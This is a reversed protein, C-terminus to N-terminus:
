SSSPGMRVPLHKVGNISSSRLRVAPGTVVFEPAHMLLQELMLRIELRALSAGLCIHPGGGGFTLHPNPARGVDFTDPDTFVSEDRNGSTFWLQLKEGVRITEGHLQVDATATRGFQMLASSYRLMEDTATPLLAPDALLRRRQDPHDTLAIAAHALTNRTTENGGILLLICFLGLELESLREGDIEAGVLQSVLDTGPHSRRKRALEDFYGFAQTQAWAVLEPSSNFEPDESAVMQTSWGLVLDHDEAPIGLLDCIVELPLRAAVDSVFDCEGLELGRLVLAEARRRIEPEMAHVARPSFGSSVLQRYRTHAPPDMNILVLSAQQEASLGFAGSSFTQPNRCIAAIDAHRTVRWSREGAAGYVLQLPEERRLAALAEHPVGTAFTDPSDLEPAGHTM